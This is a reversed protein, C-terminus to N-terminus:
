IKQFEEKKIDLNLSRLIKEQSKFESLSEHKKTKEKKGIDFFHTTKELNDWVKYIFINKLKKVRKFDAAVPEQMQFSCVFALDYGAKHDPHRDLHNPIFITDPQIKKLTKLLKLYGGEKGDPTKWCRYPHLSMDPFNLFVTETEILDYAKKAEKKRIGVIINKQKIDSYGLSGDTLIVAYKKAKINRLLGGCGIIGDDDHPCIVAVKKGLNLSEIKKM